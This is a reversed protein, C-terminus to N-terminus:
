ILNHSIYSNSCSGTFSRYSRIRSSIRPCHFPFLQHSYCHCFHLRISQLLSLEHRLPCKNQKKDGNLNAASITFITKTLGRHSIYGGIPRQEREDYKFSCRDPMSVTSTSMGGAVGNRVTASRMSLAAGSRIPIM